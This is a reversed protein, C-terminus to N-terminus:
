AVTRGMKGVNDLFRGVTRIGGAAQQLEFKENPGHYSDRETSMALMVIPRQGFYELFAPVAGISGGCGVYAPIIGFGQEAASHAAKMYPHDTRTKFPPISKTFKIEIDEDVKKINDSLTKAAKNPDQNPVLRMSIKATASDPIVTSSAPGTYGGIFGHAEITPQMWLRKLMTLSNLTTPRTIGTDRLFREADFNLNDLAQLEEETPEAVDEDLFDGSPNNRYAKDCAAIANSLVTLPNKVAGGVLGSHVPAKASRYTMEAYVLGRLSYTITPRGNMWVTDCLLIGDIDNAGIGSQKLANSFNPSGSEEEGEFIFRLNVNLEEIGNLYDVTEITALLPGKDDTAGRGHVAGDKLKGSFPELEWKGEGPPQVDYHNYVLITPKKEDVTLSGFVAPHGETEILRHDAGTRNLFGLLAEACKRVDESHVPDGSISPIQVLGGLDSAFEPLVDRSFRDLAEIDM